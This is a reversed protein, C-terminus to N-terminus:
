RYPCLGKKCSISRSDSGIDPTGRTQSQKQHERALEGLNVHSQRHRRGCLETQWIWVILIALDLGRSAFRLSERPLERLERRGLCHFSPTVDMGGGRQLVFVRRAKEGEDSRQAWDWRGQGPNGRRTSSEEGPPQSCRIEDDDPVYYGLEDWRKRQNGVEGM